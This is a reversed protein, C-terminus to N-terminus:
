PAGLACRWQEVRGPPQYHFDVHVLARIACTQKGVEDNRVFLHQRVFDGIGVPLDMLLVHVELAVALSMEGQLGLVGEHLDAFLAVGDGMQGFAAAVARGSRRPAVWSLAVCRPSLGHGGFLYAIVFDLIGAHSDDTALFPHRLNGDEAMGGVGHVAVRHERGLPDQGVLGKGIFFRGLGTRALGGMLQQFLLLRPVSRGPRAEM